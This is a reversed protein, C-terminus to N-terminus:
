KFKGMLGALGGGDNFKQGFGGSLDKNRFQERKRRLEPTEKTLEALRETDAKNRAARKDSMMAERSGAAPAEVPLLAKISLAIKRTENDVKLVKARIVEDMKLVDAPKEIRRRAIESIHVLGDVGPALEIFAGFETFRVVKGTVEAGEVIESLKVRFPDDMLQKMGLSVRKNEMDMKLVQVHIKDGEKVYKSVNKESPFVRDYTMDSIHLLGDIGGIDVFAGFPMIKRVTGEMTAGEKLTEALKQAKESREQKLLDRRSLVINGSGRRDIQMVIAPFKEGIFVSLDEIRDLSVQGAPMFAKHGAVDLELGGKNVGSVRAEIVQGIELLEWAAKQVAGPKSCIFLQEAAEFRNIVVEIKDGVKPLEEETKYEIRQIVGLEKPGFDLFIDSPGVSVVTGTRYERGSQVLRPGRIAAAQQPKIATKAKNDEASAFDAVLADIEASLEADLSAGEGTVARLVDRTNPVPARGSADLTSKRPGRDRGGGGGGGGGGESREGGRFGGRGAGPQETGDSGVVEARKINPLGKLNPGKEVPAAEVALVESPAAAPADVAATMAANIETDNAAEPAPTVTIAPNQSEMPHSSLCTVVIWWARRVLTACVGPVHARNPLHPVVLIVTQVLM